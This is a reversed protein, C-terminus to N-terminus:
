SASGTAALAHRARELDDPTNVNLLADAGGPLTEVDDITSVRLADLGGRLSTVGSELAARLTAAAAPAYAAVLPQEIGGPRPVIADVYPTAALVRALERVLVPTVCPFDVGLVFSTVDGAAELGAVLGALPGEYGAVDVVRRAGVDPLQMSAPAVVLV